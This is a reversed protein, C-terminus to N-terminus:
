DYGFPEDAHVFTLQQTAQDFQIGIYHNKDLQFLETKTISNNVTVKLAYYGEFESTKLQGEGFCVGLSHNTQLAANILVENNLEIVVQEGEFMSQADIGLEFVRPEPIKEETTCSIFSVVLLLFLAPKM